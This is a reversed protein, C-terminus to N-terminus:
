GHLQESLARALVDPNTPKSFVPVEPLRSQFSLPLPEATNVVVPVARRHLEAVLPEASGDRLNMDLIAADIRLARDALMARAMELTAVPGAVVGGAEEISYAIDYAIFMEDEVLLVNSGELGQRSTVHM